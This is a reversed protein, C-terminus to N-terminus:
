EGLPITFRANPISEDMAEGTRFLLATGEIRDPYVELAFGQGPASNPGHNACGIAPANLM